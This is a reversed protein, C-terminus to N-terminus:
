GVAPSVDAYTNGVARGGTRMDSPSPFTTSSVRSRGEVGSLARFVSGVLGGFAVSTVVSMVVPM